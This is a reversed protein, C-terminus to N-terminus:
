NWTVLPIQVSLAWWFVIGSVISLTAALIAAERPTNDCDGLAAIFVTSFTAPLLGGHRSVVIFAIISLMICTWGRLQTRPQTDAGTAAVTGTRHPSLAIGIGSLLLITGVAAPFYGPGMQRFTGVHYQISQIIAALGIFTMLSGGYYAIRRDKRDLDRRKSM